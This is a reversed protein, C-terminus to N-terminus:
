CNEKKFILCIGIFLFLLCIPIIGVSFCEKYFSSQPNKYYSSFASYINRPIKIVNSKTLIIYDTETVRRGKQRRAQKSIKNVSRIDNMFFSIKKSPQLFPTGVSYICVEKQLNCQLVQKSEGISVVAAWIPLCIFFIILFIKDIIQKM